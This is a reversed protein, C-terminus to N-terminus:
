FYLQLANQRVKKPSMNLPYTNVKTPTQQSDLLFELLLGPNPPYVPVPCPASM